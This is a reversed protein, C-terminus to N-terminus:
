CLSAQTCARTLCEAGLQWATPQLQLGSHPWARAQASSIPSVLTLSYINYFVQGPSRTEPDAVFAKPLLPLTDRLRRGHPRRSRHHKGRAADACGVDRALAGRWVLASSCFDGSVHSAENSRM